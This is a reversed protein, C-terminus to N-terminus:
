PYSAEAGGNECRPCTNRQPFGGKQVHFTRIWYKQVASVKIKGLEVVIVAIGSLSARLMQILTVMTGVSGTGRIREMECCRLGEM